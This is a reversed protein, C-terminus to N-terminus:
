KGSSVASGQVAKVAAPALPNVGTAGTPLNWRGVINSFEARAANKVSDPLIDSEM